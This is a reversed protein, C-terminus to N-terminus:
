KREKSEHKGVSCRVLKEWLESFKLGYRDFQISNSIMHRHFHFFLGQDPHPKPVFNRKCLKTTTGLNVVPSSAIEFCVYEFTRM